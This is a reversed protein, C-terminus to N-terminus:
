RVLSPPVDSVCKNELKVALQSLFRSSSLFHGKPVPTLHHPLKLVVLPIGFTISQVFVLEPQLLMPIMGWLFYVGGYM